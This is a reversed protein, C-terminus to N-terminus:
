NTKKNEATTGTVLQELQQKKAKKADLYGSLVQMVLLLLALGMLVYKHWWPQQNVGKRSLLASNPAAYGYMWISDAVSGDKQLLLLTLSFEHESFFRLTFTGSADDELTVTGTAVRAVQPVDSLVSIFSSRSEHGFAFAAKATPLVEDEEIAALRKELLKASFPLTWARLMGSTAGSFELQVDISLLSPRADVSGQPPMEGMLHRQQSFHELAIQESGERDHRQDGVPILEGHIREPFNLSGKLDLTANFVGYRDSIVSVAFPQAMVQELLPANATASTDLEVATTATTFLLCLLAGYFLVAATWSGHRM